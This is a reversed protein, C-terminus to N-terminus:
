AGHKAAYELIMQAVVDANQEPLWHTAGDLVEYRYPADVYNGTLDAAKRGLFMDKTAYVYLTPVQVNGRLPKSLPLARYWNIPGRAAGPEKLPTLYRDIAEAGLGSRALARRNTKELRTFGMEPLAPLQFFLMYWSHLLQSSRVMSAVMARPHPTTLSTVTHLRDPHRTAFAWAVGGGWDHGVLHVKDAGSADVLALVDDALESIRYDRRRRPRARPSYGRQDPALVRYGADTLLPTMADWSTQNEPYGHLAVIVPGDAPGSDSVDFTFGGRSFENVGSRYSTV